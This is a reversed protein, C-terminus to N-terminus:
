LSSMAAFIRLVVVVVPMPTIALVAVMGAATMLTRAQERVTTISLLVVVLAVPIFM